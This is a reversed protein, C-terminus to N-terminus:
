LPRVRRRRFRGVAIALGTGILVVSAPEPVPETGEFRYDLDHVILRPGAPSSTQVSFFVDATGSGRLSTSFLPTGTRSETLFAAIRGEFVFAGQRVLPEDFAVPGIVSPGIFTWEGTYFLRDHVVGGIVGRGAAISADTSLAYTTSGFDIPAGPICGDGCRDFWFTGHLTRPFWEGSLDFGRGVLSIDGPEDTFVVIGSTVTVPDAGAPSGAFLLPTVLLFM